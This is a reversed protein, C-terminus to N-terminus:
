GHNASKAGLAGKFQARTFPGWKAPDDGRREGERALQGNIYEPSVGPKWLKRAEAKVDDAMGRTVAKAPNNKSPPATEITAGAAAIMERVQKLDIGFGLDSERIVCVVDGPRLGVHHLMDFRAARSTGKFDLFLRDCRMAAFARETRKFGYGIRETKKEKDM